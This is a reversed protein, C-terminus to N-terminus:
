FVNKFMRSNKHFFMAYQLNIIIRYVIGWRSELEAFYSPLAWKQWVTKHKRKQDTKQFDNITDSILNM